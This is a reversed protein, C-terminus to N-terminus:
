RERKKSAVRSNSTKNRQGDSSPVTVSISSAPLQVSTHNGNPKYNMTKIVIQLEGSINNNIKAAFENKYRRELWWAAATWQKPMANFISMIAVEKGRMGAKEEAKKIAQSFKPKKMWELFTTYDISVAECARVRGKLTEIEHCIKKTMEEGYKM